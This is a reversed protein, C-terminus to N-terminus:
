GDEGDCDSDFEDEDLPDPAGPYVREDEDDCDDGDPRTLIDHGDRDQDYDSWGDCDQDIGDYWIEEMGPNVSANFDNCDDGGPALAHRYTDADADPDTSGVVTLEISPGQANHEIVLVTEQDDLESPAYTVTVLASGGASVNTDAPEVVFDPHEISLTVTLAREGPNGIEFQAQDEREFPVSAIILGPCDGSDECPLSLQLEARRVTYAQGVPDCAAALPVLALLTTRM